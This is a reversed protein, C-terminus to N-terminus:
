IGLKALANSMQEVLLAVQPHDAEWHLVQSKLRSSLSKSGEQPPDQEGEFLRSIDDTVARLLRESEPDVQDAASLHQHLTELTKLLEEKEM